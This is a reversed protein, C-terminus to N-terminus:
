LLGQSRDMWSVVVVHPLTLIAILVLYVGLLSPLSDPSEPVLLALPVLLVLTAATLPAADRAFHRAAGVSHSASLASTARDDLAILRVVHRLAHWFCFYLGVALIPPVTAFFTVLLITEGADLLWGDLADHATARRYGAALTIAVLAALGIGVAFRVGSGFLADLGDVAGPSFLGVLLAAVEHYQGPFALLPVLMPLAGRVAATGVRIARGDLHEVDALAVLPYLEGQGWHAWTILIFVVFAAAPALFWIIAYVGGFLLYIGVVVAIWRFTLGDGRLRPLALHDVAGHPLGLLLVSAVFPLWQYRMPVSLGALFALAVVGLLLWAPVFVVRALAREVSRDSGATVVSGEAM